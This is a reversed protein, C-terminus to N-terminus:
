RRLMTVIQQQEARINADAGVGPLRHEPANEKAAAHGCNGCRM